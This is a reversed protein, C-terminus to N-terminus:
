QTGGIETKIFEALLAAIQPPLILTISTEDDETIAQVILDGDEDACVSLIDGGADEFRFTGNPYTLDNLPDM